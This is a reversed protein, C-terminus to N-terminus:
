ANLGCLPLLPPTSFIPPLSMYFVPLSLFVASFLLNGALDPWINLPLDHRQRPVVVACFNSSSREAARKKEKWRPSSSLQGEAGLWFAVHEISAM